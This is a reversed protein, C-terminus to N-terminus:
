SEEGILNSTNAPESLRHAITILHLGLYFHKTVFQRIPVDVCM